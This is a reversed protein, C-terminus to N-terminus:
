RIPLKLVRFHMEDFVYVNGRDDVAVDGPNDLDIFPLVTSGSAAPALKLVKQPSTPSTPARLRDADRHRDLRRRVAVLPSPKM